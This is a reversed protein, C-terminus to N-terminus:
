LIDFDNQDDTQKVNTRFGFVMDPPGKDKIQQARIQKMQDSMRYYRIGNRQVKDERKLGVGLEKLRAKAAKTAGVPQYTNTSSIVGASKLYDKLLFLDDLPRIDASEIKEEMVENVIVSEEHAQRQEDELREDLVGVREGAKYADRALAYLHSLRAPLYDKPDHAKQMDMFLLRSLLADDNPVNREPNSTGIIFCTNQYDLHNPEYPLRSTNIPNGIFEKFASVKGSTMGDLEGFECLYKGVLSGVMEAKRKVQFQGFYHRFEEPILESVLTTKGIGKEGRLVPITRCAQSEQYAKQVIGIFIARAAWRNLESEPNELWPDLWNDLTLDPLEPNPECQDIWDRFPRVPNQSSIGTIWDEFKTRAITIGVASDGKERGFFRNFYYIMSGICKKDFEFWKDVVFRFGTPIPWSGDDRILFEINDREKNNRVSINLNALAQEFEQSDFQQFVIRYRTSNQPQVPKTAPSKAGEKWQSEATRRNQMIETQVGDGLREAHEMLRGYIETRKAEDAETYLKGLRYAASSLTENREGVQADDLRKWWDRANRGREMTTLPRRGESEDTSPAVPAQAPTGSQPPGNPFIESTPVSARKQLLKILSAPAELIGNGSHYEYIGDSRKSGPGVVYGKGPIRTDVGEGLYTHSTGQPVGEGEFVVHYGNPTKFTLSDKIIPARAISRQYVDETKNDFDVIFCGDAPVIGYNGGQKIREMVQDATIRNEPEKWKDVPIKGGPIIRIFTFGDEALAPLLKALPIQTKM